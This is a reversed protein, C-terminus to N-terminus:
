VSGPPGDLVGPAKEIQDVSDRVSTYGLARVRESLDAGQRLLHIQPAFLSWFVDVDFYGTTPNPDGYIKWHALEYDNTTSWECVADHTDDIRGILGIHTATAVLGGPLSSAIVEGVPDFPRSSM